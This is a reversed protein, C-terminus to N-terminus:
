GSVLYQVPMSEGKAPEPSLTDVIVALGFVKSLDTVLDATLGQALLAAQPDAGIAQFPAIRVAPQAARSAEVGAAAPARPLPRIADWSLWVGLTMAALLALATAALRRLPFRKPPADAAAVPAMAAPEIHQVPALLRYGRKAITQIYVPAGTPDGLAKRLKIIAQTLSDDGVIVGPWVAALLAERSVVQGPHQALHCLLAMAKPELRVSGAAGSIENLAPAVLWDGVRLRTDARDPSTEAGDPMTM